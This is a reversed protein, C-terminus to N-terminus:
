NNNNQKINMLFDDTWMYPLIDILIKLDSHADIIPNDELAPCLTSVNKQIDRLLEFPIPDFNNLFKWFTKLLYTRLFIYEVMDKNKVYLGRDICEQLLVLAVKCREFQNKDNAKKSHSYSGIYNRYLYLPDSLKGINKVYNVLLGSFFNDSFGTSLDGENHVIHNELLFSRRYIKSWAFTAGPLIGDKALKTRIKESEIKYKHFGSQSMKTTHIINWNYDTYQLAYEIYDLESNEDMLRHLLEFANRKYKDDQDLFMIYEGTAYQMAINRTKMKSIRSNVENLVIIVREPYMREYKKAIDVTKDTSGDDVLIIQLKNIDITQSLIEEICEAIFKEGNYMGIVLSIM